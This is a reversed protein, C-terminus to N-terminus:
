SVALKVMEFVLRINTKSGHLIAFVMHLYSTITYERGVCILAVGLAEKFIV